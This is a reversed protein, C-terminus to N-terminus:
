KLELYNYVMQRSRRFIKSFKGKIGLEHLLDNLKGHLVEEVRGDIIKTLM